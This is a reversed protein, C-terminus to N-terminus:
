TSKKYDPLIEMASVVWNLKKGDFTPKVIVIYGDHEFQPKGSENISFEGNDIIEPIKKVMDLGTITGKGESLLKDRKWIAHVLGGSKDGWVLDISGIELREFANKVHGHREQLLKEVAAKGKVNRFEEGFFDTESKNKGKASPMDKRVPIALKEKMLKDVAAQGKVGKFEEGLLASLDEANSDPHSESEAGNIEQYSTNQRYTGNSDTFKGDNGRPHDREKWEM